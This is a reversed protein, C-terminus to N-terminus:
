HVDWTTVLITCEQQTRWVSSQATIAQQHSSLRFNKETRAFCENHAHLLMQGTVDESYWLTKQHRPRVQQIVDNVQCSDTM